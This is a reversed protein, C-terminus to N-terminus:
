EGAPAPSFAALFDHTPHEALMRAITAAVVEQVEGYRDCHEDETDARTWKLGMVEAAIASVLDPPGDWPGFIDDPNSAM